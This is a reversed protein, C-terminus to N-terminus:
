NPRCRDDPPTRDITDGDEEDSSDETKIGELRELRDNQQKLMRLLENQITHYSHETQEIQQRALDIITERAATALVAIDTPDSGTDSKLKSAM